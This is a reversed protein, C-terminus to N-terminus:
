RVSQVEAYCTSALYSTHRGAAFANNIRSYLSRLSWCDSRLNCVEMTYRSSFTHFSSASKFLREQFRLAAADYVTLGFLLSMRLISTYAVCCHSHNYSNCCSGSVRPCYKPKTDIVFLERSLSCRPSWCCAAKYGAITIRIGSSVCQVYQM